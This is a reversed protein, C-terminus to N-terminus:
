VDREVVVSQYGRGNEYGKYVDVVRHTKFQIAVTDDKMLRNNYGRMIEKDEHGKKTKLHYTTILEQM